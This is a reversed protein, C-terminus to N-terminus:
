LEIIRQNNSKDEVLKNKKTLVFFYGKIISILFLLLCQCRTGM